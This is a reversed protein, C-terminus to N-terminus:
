LSVLLLWALGCCFLSNESSFSPPPQSTRERAVLHAGGSIGPILVANSIYFTNASMMLTLHPWKPTPCAMIASARSLCSPVSLTVHSPLTMHWCLDSSHQYCSWLHQGECGGASALLLLPPDVWFTLPTLSRAGLTTLFYIATVKLWTTQPGKSHCGWFGRGPLLYPCHSVAPTVLLQLRKGRYKWM